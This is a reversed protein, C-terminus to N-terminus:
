TRVARALPRDAKRTTPTWASRFAIIGTMVVIPRCTPTMSAPAIRVSVIKEQGPMPLHIISEM